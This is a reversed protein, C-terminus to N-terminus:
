CPKWPFSLETQKNCQIYQIKRIAIGTGTWQLSTKEGSNFSIILGVWKAFCNAWCKQANRSVKCFMKNTEKQKKETLHGAQIAKGRREGLEAARLLAWHAERRQFSLRKLSKTEWQVIQLFLRFSWPNSFTQFHKLTSFSQASLTQECSCMNGVMYKCHKSPNNFGKGSGHKKKKKEVSCM